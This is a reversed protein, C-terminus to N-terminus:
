YTKYLVFNSSQISDQNSAQVWEATIDLTHIITTDIAKTDQFVTGAYKKDLTKNHCFNGNTIISGTEGITRITFDIEAEWGDATSEELFFNGTTALVTGGNKVRLILEDDKISSMLGGIKAHFSDGVQFTNAPISLSGVGSGVISTETTTNVVTAGNSTQSFNGILTQQSAIEGTIEFINKINDYALIYIGNEKLDTSIIAVGGNKTIQIAGLNDVNLTSWGTNNKDFQVVLVMNVLTTYPTTYTLTFASSTGSTKSYNNPLTSDIFSAYESQTPIDNTEFYGKLTTANERSM